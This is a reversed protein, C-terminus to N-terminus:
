FCLRPGPVHSLLAKDNCECRKFMVDTILCCDQRCNSGMSRESPHGSQTMLLCEAVVRFIDAKPPLASILHFEVKETFVQQFLLLDNKHKRIAEM